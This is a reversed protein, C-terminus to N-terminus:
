RTRRVCDLSALKRADLVRRSKACVVWVRPSMSGVERLRITDRSFARDVFGFRVYRRAGSNPCEIPVSRQM